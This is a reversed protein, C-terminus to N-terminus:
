NYRRGMCGGHLTRYVPAGSHRCTDGATSIGRDSGAQCGDRLWDAPRQWYYASPRVRPCPWLTASPRGAPVGGLPRRRGGPQTRRGAALSYLSHYLQRSVHRSSLWTIHPGRALTHTRIHTYSMHFLHTPPLRRKYVYTSQYGVTIDIEREFILRNSRDSIYRM